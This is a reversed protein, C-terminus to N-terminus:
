YPAPHVCGQDILVTMKVESIWQDVVPIRTRQFDKGYEPNIRWINRCALIMSPKNYKWHSGRAIGSTCRGTLKTGRLAISGSWLEHAGSIYLATVALAVELAVVEEGPLWDSMGQSSSGERQVSRKGWLFFSDSTCSSQSLVAYM